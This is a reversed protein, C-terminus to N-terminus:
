VEGARIAAEMRKLLATPASRSAMKVLTGMAALDNQYEQLRTQFTRRDKTCVLTQPSGKRETVHTMDLKYQTIVGHLHRRREKNVRFRHVKDGRDRAFAELERCDACKCSLKAELRWDPPPEPPVESRLLLFEAASTWLSLLGSDVAPSLRDKEARIREIAPVVTTVPDFVKPNASISRAAADCLTRDEFHHLASFLNEIFEPDQHRPKAGEKEDWWQFASRRSVPAAIGDLGAVAAKAVQRVGDSAENRALTLLLDVCEAPRKPMRAEVLASLVARAKKDGLVAPARALGANESGDYASMLVDRIFQELLSSAELDVLAGIMSARGSHEPTTVIDSYDDFLYPSDKAVPWAEVIRRAAAVAASRVSEGGAVLRELHPLCATTGGQLLVDIIRNKPWLVLVARHYSREYSAGENGSAETLRKEDPPEEDLAGAPLLEGSKLPIRGFGAARDETDRWEDVYQWSDDVTDASFDEDEEEPEDDEGEGDDYGAEYRSRRSHYYFDGDPEAAGSEGIHVVALHASCGALEAARVLARSQAEDAGKLSAFSLGAPSYQHELLWALKDPAGPSKWYSRLITAIKEVEPGYDPAKPPRAKGKTQKQILNYVLCVRNGEIVPLAEHECDAYFAAFSIESPEAANTEVTVERSGHRIRLAGGRYASPLTLVLTGFMGGAKETDRHALFFGGPEYVLLKYFEASVSTGCGLGATVKSLISEFTSAWSKGGIKVAAPSIQWVNRVSTDVITDEGRGYPAQTAQKVLAEIQTAPVPFSLTGAGQVEVRPMPIELVGSVFFDGPQKVDSLLKELTELDRNYDVEIYEM